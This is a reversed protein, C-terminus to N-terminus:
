LTEDVQKQLSIGYEFVLSVCYVVLGAVLICGGWSTHVSVVTNDNLFIPYYKNSVWESVFQYPELVVLLVAIAKLRGVNKLNFPTEDKRTAFLLILAIVLTSSMILVGISFVAVSAAYWEATNLVFGRVTHIIFWLLVLSAMAFLVLATRKIKKIDAM